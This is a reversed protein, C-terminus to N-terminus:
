QLKSSKMYVNNDNFREFLLIPLSPILFINFPNSLFETLVIAYQLEIQNELYVSVSNFIAFLAYSSSTM